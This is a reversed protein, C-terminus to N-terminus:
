NEDSFLEQYKKIISDLNQIHHTDDIIHSLGVRAGLYSFSAKVPLLFQDIGGSSEYKEKSSGTTTILTIPKNELLKPNPGSLIQTLVEDQWKKLMSPVNFWFLPFQLFIKKSKELKELEKEIDIKESPYASELNHIHISSISKLSQLLEKNIKSKEFYSHSFIILNDM